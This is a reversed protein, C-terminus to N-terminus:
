EHQRGKIGDSGKVELELEVMLEQEAQSLGKDYLSQLDPQGANIWSTYWMCGIAHIAARMRREVMGNMRTHYEDSYEQSYVKM